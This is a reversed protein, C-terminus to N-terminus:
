NSIYNLKVISVNRQFNTYLKVLLRYCQRRKLILCWCLQVLIKVWLKCLILSFHCQRVNANMKMSPLVLITKDGIKYIYIYYFAFRMKRLLSPSKQKRKVWKLECLKGYDDFSGCCWVFQAILVFHSDGHCRFM